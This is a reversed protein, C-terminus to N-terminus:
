IRGGTLRTIPGHTRRGARRGALYSTAGLASLGAGVGAVVAKRHAILTWTTKALTAAQGSADIVAQRGAQVREATSNVVATATGATREAADVAASSADGATEAAKDAAKSAPATAKATARRAKASPTQGAKSDRNTDSNSQNMYQANGGVGM